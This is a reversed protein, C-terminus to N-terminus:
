TILKLSAPDLKKRKFLHTLVRIYGYVAGVLIVLLVGCVVGVVPLVIERIVSLSSSILVARPIRVYNNYNNYM